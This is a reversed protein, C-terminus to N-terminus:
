IGLTEENKFGSVTFMRAIHLQHRGDRSVQMAIRQQNSLMDLLFALKQSIQSCRACRLFKYCGGNAEHAMCSITVVLVAM